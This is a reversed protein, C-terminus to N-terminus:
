RLPPLLSLLRVLERLSSTETKRLIHAVQTRLTNEAVKREAGYEALSRGSLLALTLRAETPTLGFLRGLMAPHLAPGAAGPRMSVLARGPEDAFRMSLPAVLVFLRGGDRGTMSLAGGAGGSAADAVLRKLQASEGPRLAGIGHGAGGLILAEGAQASAEAAMNAFLIAGAADCIVAGVSLADLAALGVSSAEFTGLRRRLQLARQLHPSLRRLREVEREDFRRNRQGRHVGFEGVIGPAVPVPGGITEVTDLGRLFDAYFESQRLALEPVVDTGRLAKLAPTPDFEGVARAWPNIRWYYAQYRWVAEQPLEHLGFGLRADNGAFLTATGAHVTRALIGAMRSLGDDEFAADYIEGIPDHRSM